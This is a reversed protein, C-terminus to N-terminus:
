VLSRKNEICIKIKMIKAPWWKKGGIIIGGWSVIIDLYLLVYMFIPFCLCLFNETWLWESDTPFSLIFGCNLTNTDLRSFERWNVQLQLNGESKLSVRVLYHFLAIKLLMMIGLSWNMKQFNYSSYTSMVFKCNLLAYVLTYCGGWARMPYGRIHVHTPRHKLSTSKLFLLQIMCIKHIKWM